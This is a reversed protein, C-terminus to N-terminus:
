EIGGLIRATWEGDIDRYLPEGSSIERELKMKMKMKMKMWTGAQFGNGNERGCRCERSGIQPIM